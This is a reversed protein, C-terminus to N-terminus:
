PTSSEEAEKRFITRDFWHNLYWQGTRGPLGRDYEQIRRLIGKGQYTYGNLESNVVRRVERLGRREELTFSKGLVVASTIDYVGLGYNETEINELVSTLCQLIRENKPRVVMFGISVGKDPDSNGYPHLRVESSFHEKHIIQSFHFDNIPEFSIDLYIGGHVYLVCYRWFDSKYALPILKQYARLHREGFNDLICKECDAVDYVVHNFEPNEKRIREGLEKLLPPLDKTHWIQFLNRPVFNPIDSTNWLGFCKDIYRPYMELCEENVLNVPKPFFFPATFLCVPKWKSTNGIDYAFERGTFTTLLVFKANSTRIHELIDLAEKLPYHGLVDRCLVLDVGEPIPDRAPHHLIFEKAYKTKNREVWESDCDGGIYRPIHSFLPEVSTCEGCGIHFVTKISYTEIYSLLARQFSNM